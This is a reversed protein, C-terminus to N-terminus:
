ALLDTLRLEDGKRKGLHERYDRLAGVLKDKDSWYEELFDGSKVDSMGLQAKCFTNPHLNHDRRSARQWDEYRGEAHIVLMEIEPQTVVDFRLVRGEYLRHLRFQARPSDLIRLIVLQSEGEQTTYDKDLFREEIQRGSRCQTCLRGTVEDEVLNGAPIVLLGAELLKLFIVSEARGECIALVYHSRVAARFEAGLDDPM